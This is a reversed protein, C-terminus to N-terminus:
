RAKGGRRAAREDVLVPLRYRRRGDDGRTGEVWGDRELELLAVYVGGEAALLVFGGVAGGVGIVTAPVRLRTAVFALVFFLGAAAMRWPEAAGGGRVAQALVLGTVFAGLARIWRVADRVRSGLVERAASPGGAAGAAIGRARLVLHPVNYVVLFALPAWLVGQLALAVAVLAGFPRLAGWMLADGVMGLPSALGRKIEETAAPTGGAVESAAASGLVYSALTPNTNFFGLHRKLFLSKAEADDGLRRLLPLMAFCFGLGQMGRPNWVSQLLFSRWFIGFMEGPTLAAGTETRETM